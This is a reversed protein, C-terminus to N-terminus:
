KGTYKKLAAELDKCEDAWYHFNIVDDLRGRLYGSLSMKRYSTDMGNMKAALKGFENISNFPPYFVTPIIGLTDHIKKAGNKLDNIVKHDDLKAYDDHDWCHLQPKIHPHKKIYEILEKAKEFHNAVIAIHHDVGYKIFLQDVEVFKSLVYEYSLHRNESPIFYGYGIDDDRFIIKKQTQM